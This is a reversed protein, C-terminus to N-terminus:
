KAQHSKRKLTKEAALYESLKRRGNRKWKLASELSVAQKHGNNGMVKSIDHADSEAVVEFSEKMEHAPIWAAAGTPLGSTQRKFACVVREHWTDLEPANYLNGEYHIEVMHNVSPCPRAVIGSGPLIHDALSPGAGERPLTKPILIYHPMGSTTQTVM